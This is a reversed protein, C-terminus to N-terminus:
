FYRMRLLNFGVALAFVGIRLYPNISDFISLILMSIGTIGHVLRNKKESFYFKIGPIIRKMTYAGYLIEV